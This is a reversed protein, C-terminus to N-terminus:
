PEDDLLGFDQVLWVTRGDSDFGWYSPYVGDGLGSSYAAIVSDHEAIRHITWSWTDVYTADMENIIRQFYENDTDMASELEQIASADALGATGSDVPFGFIQDERLDGLDQGGLTAMEWRAPSANEDLVLAAAAVRQDDNDYRVILLRLSYTGPPTSRDFPVPGGLMLPDCAVIRGTPFPIAGLSHWEVGIIDESLAPIAREGITAALNPPLTVHSTM